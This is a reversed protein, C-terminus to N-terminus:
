GGSAGKFCKRIMKHYELEHDKLTADLEDLAGSMTEPDLVIIKVNKIDDLFNFGM